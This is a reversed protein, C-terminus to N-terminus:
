FYFYFCTRCEKEKKSIKVFTMAESFIPFIFNHNIVSINSIIDTKTSLKIFFRYINCSPIDDRFFAREASILAIVHFIIKGKVMKFGAEIFKKREATQV